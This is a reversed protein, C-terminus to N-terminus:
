GGTVSAGGGTATSTGSSSTGSGGTGLPAATAVGTSPSGTSPSATSAAGTGTATSATSSAGTASAGTSTTGTATAGTATTGTSTTTSGSGGATTVAGPATPPPTITGNSSMLAQFAAANPAKISAAARSANSAKARLFGVGGPPPMVMGLGTALREIRQEDALSAVSERLLENRSQLATAREIARGMTAGLKLVEVQMAVIGALMVGLIAIWARGRIVRDLLSHDPLRRVAAVVRAGLSEVRHTRGRAPARRPATVPRGRAPGSVRRPPSGTRVTRRHGPTAPAAPRSATARPPATPTM